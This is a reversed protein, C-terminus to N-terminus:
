PGSVSLSLSTSSGIPTTCQGCVMWRGNDRVYAVTDNNRAAAHSYEVNAQGTTSTADQFQVGTTKVRDFSFGFTREWYQRTPTLEQATMYDTARCESSLLGEIDEFSGTLFAQAYAQATAKLGAVGPETQAALLAKQTLGAAGRDSQSPTTTSGCAACVGVVLAIILVRLASGVTALIGRHVAQGLSGRRCDSSM